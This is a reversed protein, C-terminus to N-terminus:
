HETKASSETTNKQELSKILLDWEQWPRVYPSGMKPGFSYNEVEVERAQNIQQFFNQTHVPSFSM